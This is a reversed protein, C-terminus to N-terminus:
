CNGLESWSGSLLYLLVDAFYKSCVVKRNGNFGIKFHYVEQIYLQVQLFADVLGVGLGIIFRAKNMGILGDM